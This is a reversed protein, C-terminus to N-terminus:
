KNDGDLHINGSEDISGSVMVGSKLCGSLVDAMSDPWGELLEVTTGDKSKVLRTTPKKNFLKKFSNIVKNGWLQMKM